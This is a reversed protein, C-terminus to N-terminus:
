NIEVFCKIGFVATAILTELTAHSPREGSHCIEVSVISERLEDTILAAGHPENAETTHTLTPRGMAEIGNGM